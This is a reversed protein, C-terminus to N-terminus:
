YINAQIKIEGGLTLIQSGTWKAGPKLDVMSSVHGPEVCLMNKWGDKPTFDAMGASKNIWPNWVVADPLNERDVNVLVKGLEIIQLTKDEHVDKYVRDFEEHFGIAPAKEVYEEGLVKDVVQHDILNNVLTDTIDPIKFYTHFLWNFEFADKGTNEVDISTVLKDKTLSVTLILTVDYKGEGWLKYAEPDVNEKGLGFQVTIPNESTQGLFEWTSNRVFGHQPLKFTPHTEDSQKGFVPFVLPIGGRVPKSGDLHAGESLWLKEQSQNKWSIVTAGYKLITATNTPDIPDTIIVRDELEEVPM